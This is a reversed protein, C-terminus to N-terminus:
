RFSIICKTKLIDSFSITKTNQEENKKINGSVELAINDSTVNVLKGQMKIGDKLVVEVQKGTNKIYQEHVSFSNNIGPSTVQIAYNDDFAELEREIIRSIEQCENVTINNMKDITVKIQKNSSVSCDIIFLGPINVNTNIIDIIQHNTVDPKMNVINEKKNM